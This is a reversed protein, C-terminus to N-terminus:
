WHMIELFGEEKLVKGKLNFQEGASEFMVAVSDYIADPSVCGMFHRTVYSYIKWEHDDFEHRYAARVTIPPHDGADVGRKPRNIGTKLLKTAYKGWEPHGVQQKLVENFDFNESFSTSETRPYTTFGRLYLHEAIKITESSSM